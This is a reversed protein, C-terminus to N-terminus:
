WIREALLQLSNKAWTRGLSMKLNQWRHTLRRTWLGLELPLQLLLKTSRPPTMWQCLHSKKKSALALTLTLITV